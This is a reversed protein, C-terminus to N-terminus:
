TKVAATQSHAVTPCQPRPKKGRKRQKSDAAVGGLPSIADTTSKATDEKEVVRHDGGGSNAPHHTSGAALHDVNARSPDARKSDTSGRPSNEAAAHSRLHRQLEDARTFRCRLGCM